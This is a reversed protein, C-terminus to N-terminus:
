LVKVTRNTKIALHVIHVDFARRFGKSPKFTCSIYTKQRLLYKYIYILIYLNFIKYLLLHQVYRVYGKHAQTEATCIVYM